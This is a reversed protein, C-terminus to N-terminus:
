VFAIAVGISIALVVAIVILVKSIVGNGGKGKDDNDKDNGGHWDPPAQCYCMANEDPPFLPSEKSLDKLESELKKKEQTRNYVIIELMSYQWNSLVSDEKINSLNVYSKLISAADDVEIGLTKAAEILTIQKNIKTTDM